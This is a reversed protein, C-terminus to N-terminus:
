QRYSLNARVRTQTLGKITKDRGLAAGWDTRILARGLWAVPVPLPFLYPQSSINERCARPSIGLPILGPRGSQAQSNRGRTQASCAGSPVFSARPSGISM